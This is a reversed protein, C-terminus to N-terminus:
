GDLGSFFREFPYLFVCLYMTGRTLNKFIEISQGKRAFHHALASKLQHLFSLISGHFDNFQVCLNRLIDKSPLIPYTKDDKGQPIHYLRNLLHNLLDTSPPVHIDQVVVNGTFSELMRWRSPSYSMSCIVLQIPVFDNDRLHSVSAIFSNLTELPIIEPNKWYFLLSLSTLSM